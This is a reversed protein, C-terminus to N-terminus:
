TALASVYNSPALVAGALRKLDGIYSSLGVEIDATTVEDNRHCSFCSTLAKDVTPEYCICRRIAGVGERALILWIAQELCAVRTGFDQPELSAIARIARKDGTLLLAARRAVLIAVLQSEGVDLELGAQAAAEELAAAMEIEILEPEIAGMAECLRDFAREAGTSDNLAHRSLKGRVVYRAVSLMAPSGAVTTSIALFPADLQWASIKLLIDNDVLVRDLM